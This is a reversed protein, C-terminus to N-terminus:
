KEEPKPGALKELENLQTRVRDADQAGPAFKLYNRMHRAAASYDRRDAMIVGLLHNVKPFRHQTDLKQAELASKEAQDLKGLNYNAVSNFLYAQPFDYPDLRIVRETTDAVEQWKRDNAALAALQLYPKVFKSDAALSEEYSKRAEEPRKGAEQALGLEFWAAAYKPYLTVAKRLEKEADELKKKKLAERGKEYAKKADKPAQLSTISITSGEVNALRRLIITGLDPNDLARRGALHVPESRFGALVARIECGMLQQESVGGGGLGGMGGMNGANSRSQGPMGFGSDTGFSADPMMSSNQGLQFSFRGKSDTYGEPRAVGNCVREIVVSDPPATGDELMVKGSLFIPRPGQDPFPQREVPQPQRTRDSPYQQGPVTPGPTPVNGPSPSPSPSPTPQPAPTQSGSQQAPLQYVAVSLAAASVIRIVIGLRM